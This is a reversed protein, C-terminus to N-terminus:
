SSAVSLAAMALADAWRLPHLPCWVCRYALPGTACRQLRPPWHPPRRARSPRRRRCSTGSSAVRQHVLSCTSPAPVLLKLLFAFIHVSGVQVVARPVGLPSVHKHSGPKSGTLQGLLKSYTEPRKVKLFVVAGVCGVVVVLAAIVGGAIAGADPGGGGSGGGGPPKPPFINNAICQSSFDRDAASMVMPVPPCLTLAPPRARGTDLQAGVNFNLFSSDGPGPM